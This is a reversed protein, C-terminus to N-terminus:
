LTVGFSTNGAGGTVGSNASGASGTAETITHTALNILTVRGSSGGTGGAGSTVSGSTTSGGNGGNARLLNTIVNGVKLQYILMVWGGGGGGGGGSTCANAGIHTTAPSSAGATGNGGAAQFTAAPNSAGTIFIRAVVILVGGGAGGDGGFAGAQESWFPDGKGGTGGSAAYVAGGGGGGGGGGRILNGDASVFRSEMRGVLYNTPTAGSGAAGIAAGGAGGAKGNGYTVAPGNNGNGGSNNGGAAALGGTGVSVGPATTTGSASADFVPGSGTYGSIDLKDKVYIRYGAMVIKSTTGTITLNNYYMDRTLTTTGSSISVDGDVGAGYIEADFANGDAADAAMFVDKSGSSFSVLANANSSAVVQDRSLTTGSATYTGYFLEWETTGQCIFLGRDGNSLGSGVALYGSQAGGLTLTGTGTTTTQDKIRNARKIAAM